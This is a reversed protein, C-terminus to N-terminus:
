PYTVSITLGPTAVTGPTQTGDTVAQVGILLPKGAGSPPAAATIACPVAPAGNYACTANQLTVGNDTTYAGASINITQTSSGTIAINGAAPNGFLREGPGAATVTGDSALTYTDATGSSVTGFDMDSNKTLSVPTDFGIHATVPQTVPFAKEAYLLVAICVLLGLSNRFDKKLM